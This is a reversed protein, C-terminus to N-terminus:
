NKCFNRGIEIHNENKMQQKRNYEHMLKIGFTLLFLNLFNWNIDTQNCNCIIKKGLSAQIAKRLM